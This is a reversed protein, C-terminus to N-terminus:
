PATTLTLVQAPSSSCATLTFLPGPYGSPRPSVQICRASASGLTSTVQFRYRHGTAGVHQLTWEVNSPDPPVSGTCSEQRVGFRYQDLCQGSSRSVIEFTGAPSHELRHFAFSQTPSRNCPAGYIDDFSLSPNTTSVDLCTHQSVSFIRSMPAAVMPASTVTPSPDVPPPAALAPLALM